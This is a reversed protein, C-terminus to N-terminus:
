HSALHSIDDIMKDMALIGSQSQADLAVFEWNWGSELLMRKRDEDTITLLIKILEQKLTPDFDKRLTALKRPVARTKAVVILEKKLLEPLHEYDTSSIAGAAVKDNRIMAITNEEDGSFFYGVTSQPPMTDQVPMYSLPLGREVILAAPLLYGSTSYREQLALKHNVLNELKKLGRSKSTLIVTHYQREGNVLAELIIESNSARRALLNPYSSDIFLDVRGDKLMLSIEEVSKAIRINVRSHDWGLGDALFDALPRIKRMRDTPSDPDVDSLTITIETSHPIQTRETGSSKWSDNEQEGGCATLFFVLCFPLILRLVSNNV